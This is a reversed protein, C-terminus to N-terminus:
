FTTDIINESMEVYIVAACFNIHKQLLGYEFAVLGEFIQSCIGTEVSLVDFM